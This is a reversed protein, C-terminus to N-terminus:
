TGTAVFQPMSDCMGSVALREDRWSSRPVARSRPATSTCSRVDADHKDGLPPCVQLTAIVREDADADVGSQEARAVDLKYGHAYITKLILESAGSLCLKKRLKYVHQELTRAAIQATAGWIGAAIQARSLFKGPNSFFLWAMAFERGTLPIDVDDLRVLGVDRKLLYRGIRIENAITGTGRRQLALHARFRIQEVDYRNVVDTAGADIWGLLGTWGVQNTLVIAPTCLDANCSRWSLLASTQVPETRADILVLDYRNVRMARLVDLERSFEDVVVGDSSFADSVHRRLLGDDTAIAFLPVNKVATRM